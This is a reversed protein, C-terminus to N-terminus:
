FAGFLHVTLRYGAYISVMGYWRLLWPLEQYGLLEVSSRGSREGLRFAVLDSVQHNNPEILKYLWAYQQRQWPYKGTHNTWGFIGNLYDAVDRTLWDPKSPQQKKGFGTQDCIIQRVNDDLQQAIEIPHLNERELISKWNGPEDAGEHQEILNRIDRLAVGLPSMDIWTDAERDFYSGHDDARITEIEKIQLEREDHRKSKQELLGLAILRPETLDLVHNLLSATRGNDPQLSWWSMNQYLAAIVDDTLWKPRTPEDGSDAPVKTGVSRHRYGSEECLRVMLWHNLDARASTDTYAPLASLDRFFEQPDAGNREIIWRACAERLQSSPSGDLWLDLTDDYKDQGVAEETQEADRNKVVIRAAEFSRRLKMFGEPDDDPRISKLKRAYAKRVDRESAGAREIGLVIFPDTLGKVRNWNNLM